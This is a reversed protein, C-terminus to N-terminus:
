NGELAAIDKEYQTTRKMVSDPYFSYKAQNASSCSGSYYRLAACWESDYTKKNAGNDYL